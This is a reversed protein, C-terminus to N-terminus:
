KLDIRVIRGSSSGVLLTTGDKLFTMCQACEDPASDPIEIERVSEEIGIRGIRIRDNETCAAWWESSSVLAGYSLYSLAKAKWDIEGTEPDFRIIILGDEGSNYAGLMLKSGPIGAVGHGPGPVDGVLRMTGSQFDVTRIGQWYSCAIAGFRRSASCVAMDYAFGFSGTIERVRTVHFGNEEPYIDVVHLKWSRNYLAVRYGGEIPDLFRIGNVRFGGLYRYTHNRPNATDLIDICGPHSGAILIKGDPSVALSYWRNDSTEDLTSHEVPEGSFLELHNKYEGFFGAAQLGGVQRGGDSELIRIEGTEHMAFVRNREEDPVICTIPSRTGGRRVVELGKEGERVLFWRNLRFWNATKM